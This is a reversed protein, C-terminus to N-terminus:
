IDKQECFFCCLGKLSVEYKQVIVGGAITLEQIYKGQSLIDLWIGAHWWPLIELRGPFRRCYLTTPAAVLIGMTFLYIDTRRQATQMDGVNELLAIVHCRHELIFLSRVCRNKNQSVLITTM